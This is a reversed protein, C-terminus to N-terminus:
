DAQRHVARVITYPRQKTEIFIRATYLGVVGISAISLGGLMWISVILSAYGAQQTLGFLHRLTLYLASCSSLVFILLGLVFVFMLPKESFATIGEFTLALRQSFSYSSSGRYAKVIAIGAQRYGTLAWLGGIATKQEKHRVLSQVYARRMLRATVLSEPIPYTSLQRILWWHLAGGVREVWGGKRREQYGYVVDAGDTQLRSAFPGLWAPDEELDSDILFVLDGSAHELGTMMARHHGFNRSLEVITLRPDRGAIALARALSDDPSGDDVMVIEYDATIAAAAESARRHFEDVYPASRYLTTVISLKM